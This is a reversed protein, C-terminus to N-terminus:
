EESEKHFEYENHFEWEKSFENIEFPNDTTVLWQLLEIYDNVIKRNIPEGEAGDELGGKRSIM